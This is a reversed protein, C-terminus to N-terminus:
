GSPLQRDKSYSGGAGVWTRGSGMTGYSMRGACDRTAESRKWLEREKAGGVSVQSEVSSM